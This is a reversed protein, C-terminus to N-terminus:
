LGITLGGDVIITQGVTYSCADSALYMLAGSLDGYQGLRKIPVKQEFRAISEPSTAAAMGGNRMNGPAISNVFVGYPAFAHGLSKTLHVVGAKAANYSPAAGSAQFAAVSSILVMRGGHEKMYAKFVEKATLFTGTLDIDIVRQWQELTHEEPQNYEITGANNVLIDIKGFVGLVEQIMTKVSAEKAIDCVFFVVRRGTKEALEAAAKKLKEPNTAVLALDAGYEALTTAFEIGLGQSGGTVLAVKGTLDFSIM